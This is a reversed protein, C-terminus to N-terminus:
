PGGGAIPRSPEVKSKIVAVDTGLQQLTGNMRDLKADLKELTAGETTKHLALDERVPKVAAEARSDVWGQVALYAVIIVAAAAVAGVSAKVPAPLWETAISM